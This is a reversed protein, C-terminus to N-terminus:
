KEWCHTPVAEGRDATLATLLNGWRIRYASMRLPSSSPSRAEGLAASQQPKVRKVAQCFSFYSIGSHTGLEVLVGPSAAEMIWFAFPIHGAWSLPDTVHEPSWFSCTSFYKEVDMNAVKSGSRRGSRSRCHKLEGVIGWSRQHLKTLPVNM